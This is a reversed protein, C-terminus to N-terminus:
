LLDPYEKVHFLRHYRYWETYVRNLTFSMIALVNAKITEKPWTAYIESSAVNKIYDKYTVWYNKATSDSPAGDHVVIYEPVVVKSLVIEGSESIPKIEEEPIKSPYEEFLTHAQIVYDLFDGEQIIPTLHIRQIATVNPLLQAGAILTPEYGKADIQFTYEAYPQFESPTMSYSLPPTDLLIRPSKGSADTVLTELVQGTGGTLSIKITANEIPRNNPRSVIQFQLSGQDPM